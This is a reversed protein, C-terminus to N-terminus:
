TLENFSFPLYVESASFSSSFQPLGVRKESYTLIYEDIVTSLSTISPSQTGFQRTNGHMM